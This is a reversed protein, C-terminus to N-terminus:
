VKPASVAAEVTKFHTQDESGHFAEGVMKQAAQDGGLAAEVPHHRFKHADDVPRQRRTYEFADARFEFGAPAGGAAGRHPHLQQAIVEIGHGVICRAGDLEAGVADIEVEATRALVTLRLWPPAM